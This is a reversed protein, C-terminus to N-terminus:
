TAPFGEGRERERNAMEGNVNVNMQWGPLVCMWRDRPPVDHLACVEPFWYWWCDVSRYRFM